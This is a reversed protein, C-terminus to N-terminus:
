VLKLLDAYATEFQALGATQLDQGVQELDIGLASIAALQETAADTAQDLSRQAIGHDRFAVLTADPVTNVTQPGILEEM